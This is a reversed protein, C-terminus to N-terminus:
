CALSAISHSKRSYILFSWVAKSGLLEKRVGVKIARFLLLPTWGGQCWWVSAAWAVWLPWMSLGWSIDWFVSLIVVLCMLLSSELHNQDGATLDGEIVLGGGDLAWVGSLLSLWGSCAWGFELCVPVILCLLITTKHLQTKLVNFHNSEHVLFFFLYM